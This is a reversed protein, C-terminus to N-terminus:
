NILKNRLFFAVLHPINKVCYVEKMMAVTAEMTRINTKTEEAIDNISNGDSLLQVIKIHNPKVTTLVAVKKDM